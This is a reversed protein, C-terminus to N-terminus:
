KKKRISKLRSKEKEAERNAADVKSLFNNLITCFEFYTSRELAKIDSVKGDCANYILNNVFGDFEELM